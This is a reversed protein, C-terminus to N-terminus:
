TQFKSLRFEYVRNKLSLNRKLFCTYRYCIKREDKLIIAVGFANWCHKVYSTVINSVNLSEYLEKATETEITVEDMLLEKNDVFRFLKSLSEFRNHYIFLFPIIHQPALLFVSEQTFKEREKLIGIFGLHHDAHLHSIYVAQFFTM